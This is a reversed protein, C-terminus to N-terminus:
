KIAAAGCAIDITELEFEDITQGAADFGQQCYTTEPTILLLTVVDNIGGDFIVTVELMPPCDVMPLVEITRLYATM